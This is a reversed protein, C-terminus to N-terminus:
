FKGNNLLEIKENIVKKLAQKGNLIIEKPDYITENRSLLNRTTQAIAINLETNFNIKAHGYEIAKQIDRDSIGSAGHLVLPQEITESLISMIEFKLDPEGVYPGHVSGLAAALADVKTSQVFKLCEDPDAYKINATVGDETGGVAGIEGEVSVHFSKAYEVVEKTVEMNKGLPLSSGDIMVSSFGADIAKKCNEVSQGHDLHLVIKTNIEWEKVMLEIMRKVFSYGGLREVNKDTVGIIVPSFHKQSVELITEAWLYSNINFQPVAYRESKAGYLIDNLTVFVM